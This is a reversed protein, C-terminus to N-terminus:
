WQYGEYTDFFDWPHVNFAISPDQYNEIDVLVSGTDFDKGDATFTEGNWEITSADEGKILKACIVTSLYGMKVSSAVTFGGVIGAELFEVIADSSDSGYVKVGNDLETLAASIGEMAISNTTFFAKIDPYATMMDYTQNMAKASDNDCYLIEGMVEIGEYKEMTDLFGQERDAITSSGVAASIIGVQGEGGLDEAIKEALLVGCKYNDFAVFMDYDDSNLGSDVLVLPIDAEKVKQCIDIMADADSVGLVIGAAGANLANEVLAIEGAVDTEGGEPTQTIVEVELEEGALKAAENMTIWGDGEYMKGIWYITGDIDSYATEASATMCMGCVMVMGLGLAVLKKMNKKM